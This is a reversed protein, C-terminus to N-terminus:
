DANQVLQVAKLYSNQNRDFFGDLRQEVSLCNALNKKRDKRTLNGLVKPLRANLTLDNLPKELNISYFMTATKFSKSDKFNSLGLLYMDHITGLDLAKMYFCPESISGFLGYNWPDKGIYIKRSSPLRESDRVRAVSIESDLAGNIFLSAEIIDSDTFVFVVFVWKKLPLDFSSFLCESRM